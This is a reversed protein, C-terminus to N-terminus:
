GLSLQPQPRFLEVVAVVELVDDNVGSTTALEEDFFEALSVTHRSRNSLFGGLSSGNFQHVSIKPVTTETNYLSGILIEQFSEEYSTPVITAYLSLTEKHIPRVDREIYEFWRAINRIVKGISGKVAIASAM